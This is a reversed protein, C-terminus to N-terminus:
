VSGVHYRALVHLVERAGEAGDRGSSRSHNANRQGGARIEDIRVADLYSEAEDVVVGGVVKVGDRPM